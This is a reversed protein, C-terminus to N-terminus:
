RAQSAVEGLATAVKLFLFYRSSLGNAKIARSTSIILFNQWTFWSSFFRKNEDRLGITRKLFFSSVGERAASSIAGWLLNRPKM